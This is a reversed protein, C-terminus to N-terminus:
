PLELFGNDTDGDVFNNNITDACESLQEPTHSTSGDALEQNALDLIEQVTLDDCVNAGASQMVLEALTADGVERVTDKTWAELGCDSHNPNAVAYDDFAVSISLTTTHAALNNGGNISTPDTETALLVAPTGGDPLYAEIDSALTFDVEFGINLDGIV